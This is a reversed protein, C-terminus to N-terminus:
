NASCVNTINPGGLHDVIFTVEPAQQVLEAVLPLLPTSVLLEFSLHYRIGFCCCFSSFFFFALRLWFFLRTPVLLFLDSSLVNAFFIIQRGLIFLGPRIPYKEKKKKKEKPESSPGSGSARSSNLTLRLAKLVPSPPLTAASEACM